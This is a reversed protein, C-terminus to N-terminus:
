AEKWGAFETVVSLLEQPIELQPLHGAGQLLRFTAGPISAAYERGYDPTAIRDAEGWALLTPCTIASLRAALTPDAMSKGGYALLAARNGAMAQRQAETMAAPDIRHGEPNAWSLDAVQDLTLSFFDAVPHAASDLGVADLLILRAVRDSGSALEAAIWGGISSGIVVVDSLGLQGLLREYVAALGRASAIGEPRRTGNFGPHVPALVRVQYHESLLAGLGAVSDPGAGGHLLLVPTGTGQEAATVPVDGAGTM